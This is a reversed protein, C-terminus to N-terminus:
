SALSQLPASKVRPPHNAVTIEGKLFDACLMVDRWGFQQIKSVGPTPTESNMPTGAWTLATHWRLNCPVPCLRCGGSLLGPLSLSRRLPTSSSLATCPPPAVSIFLPDTHVSAAGRQWPDSAGYPSPLPRRHSSWRGFAFHHQMITIDMELHM